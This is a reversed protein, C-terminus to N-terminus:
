HLGNIYHSVAKIEDLTMREAILKMKKGQEDKDNGGREADRFQKMTAFTYNEVQGSLKPYKAAPNGAGSPGHCGMCAPVGKHTIGGQYILKGTNRLAEDPASGVTATQQAYYAAVNQMDQESLNAVQGKMTANVRVGSKFNKLQTVIYGENQGALSPFTGAASANGNKGHCATCAQAISKGKAADGAAFASQATILAVCGVILRILRHNM